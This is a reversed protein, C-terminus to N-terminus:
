LRLGKKVLKIGEIIPHQIDYEEKARAISDRVSFPFESPHLASVEVCEPRLREQGNSCAYNRLICVPKIGGYPAIIYDSTLKKRGQRQHELTLEPTYHEFTLTQFHTHDLNTNLFRTVASIVQEGHRSSHLVVIGPTYLLTGDDAYIKRSSANYRRELEDSSISIDRVEAAHTLLDFSSRDSKAFAISLASTAKVKRGTANEPLFYSPTLFMASFSTDEYAADTAVRRLLTAYELSMFKPVLQEYFSPISVKTHVSDAFILSACDTQLGQYIQSDFYKCSMRTNVNNTDTFPLLKGGAEMFLYPGPIFIGGADRPGHPTESSVDPAKFLYEHKLTYVLGDLRAELVKQNLRSEFLNHLAM